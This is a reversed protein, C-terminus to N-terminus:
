GRPDGAPNLVQPSRPAGVHPPSVGWGLGGLVGRKGWGVRKRWGGKGEPEGARGREWETTSHKSKARQRPAEQPKETDEWCKKGRRGGNGASTPDQEQQHEGAGRPEGASGTGQAGGRSTPCPSFGKAAGFGREDEKRKSCLPTLGLILEGVDGWLTREGSGAAM